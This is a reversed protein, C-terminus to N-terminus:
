RYLANEFPSGSLFASYRGRSVFGSLAPRVSGRRDVSRKREGGGTLLGSIGADPRQARDTPVGARGGEGEIALVTRAFVRVGCPTFLRSLEDGMRGGGCARRR